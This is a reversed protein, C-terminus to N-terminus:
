GLKTKGLEALRREYVMECLGKKNYFRFVLKHGAEIKARSKLLTGTLEVWNGTVLYEGERGALEFRGDSKLSLQAIKCPVSKGAVRAETCEYEGSIDETRPMMSKDGPVKGQARNVGSYMLAGAVALMALVIGKWRRGLKM